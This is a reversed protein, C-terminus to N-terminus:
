ENEYKVGFHEEVLELGSVVGSHWAKDWEDELTSEVATKHLVNLCEQVILEAFKEQFPKFWELGQPTTWEAYQQAEKALEKIRENM